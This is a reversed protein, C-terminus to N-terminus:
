NTKQIKIFQNAIEFILQNPKQRRGFSKITEIQQATIAVSYDALLFQALLELEKRTNNLILQSIIIGEKIVSKKGIIQKIETASPYRGPPVKKRLSDTLLQSKLQALPNQPLSQIILVSGKLQLHNFLYKIIQKQLVPNHKFYCLVHSALIFSYQQSLQQNQMIEEVKGLITIAQPLQQKAQALMSASSDLLYLKKLSIGNLNLIQWIAGNGGGLDLVKDLLFNSRAILNAIDIKETNRRPDFLFEFTKTFLDRNLSSTMM